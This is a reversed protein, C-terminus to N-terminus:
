SYTGAVSDYNYMKTTNGFVNQLILCKPSKGVLHQLENLTFSTKNYRDVKSHDLNYVDVTTVM